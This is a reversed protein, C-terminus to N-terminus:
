FFNRECAHVNYSTPSQELVGVLPGPGFHAGSLRRHMVDNLSSLSTFDRAAPRTKAVHVCVAFSLGLFIGVRDYSIGGKGEGRM